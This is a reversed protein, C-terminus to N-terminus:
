HISLIIEKLDNRVSPEGGTCLVYEVEDFLKDSFVQKIEEPLLPDKTAEQKWISCHACRSNCRDTVMFVVRKPKLPIGFFLSASNKIGKITVKVAKSVGEALIM